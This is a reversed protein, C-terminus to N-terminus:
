RGTRKNKGFMAILSRTDEYLILLLACAGVQVYDETSRAFGIPNTDWARYVYCRSHDILIRGDDLDVGDDHKFIRCCNDQFGATALLRGGKYTTEYTGGAYIAYYLRSSRPNLIGNRSGYGLLSGGLFTNDEVLTGGLYIGGRETVFGVRIEQNENSASDREIVYIGWGKTRTGTSVCPETGVMFAKLGGLKSM